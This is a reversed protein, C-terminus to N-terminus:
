PSLIFNVIGLSQKSCVIGSKESNLPNKIKAWRNIFSNARVKTREREEGNEKRKWKGKGKRMRVRARARAIERESERECERERGGRERERKKETEREKETEPVYFYWHVRIKFTRPIIKKKDQAFCIVPCKKPNKSPASVEFYGM